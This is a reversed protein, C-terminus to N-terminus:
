RLFIIQTASPAADGSDRAGTAALPLVSGAKCGGFAVWAGGIFFDFQEDVGIYIGRSLTHTTNTDTIGEGATAPTIESIAM